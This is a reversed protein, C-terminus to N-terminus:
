THVGACHEDDGGVDSFEDVDALVVNVVTVVGSAAVVDFLYDDQGM